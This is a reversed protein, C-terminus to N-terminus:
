FMDGLRGPVHVHRLVLLIRRLVPHGKPTEATEQEAEALVGSYIRCITDRDPFAKDYAATIRQDRM